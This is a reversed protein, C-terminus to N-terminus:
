IILIEHPPIMFICKKGRRKSMLQAFIHLLTEPKKRAPEISKQQERQKFHNETYFTILLIFWVCQCFFILLYIEPFSLHSAMQFCFNHPYFMCFIGVGM